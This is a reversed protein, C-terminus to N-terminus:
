SRGYAAAEKRATVAIKTDGTDRDRGSDAANPARAAVGTTIVVTPAGARGYVNAVHGIQVTNVGTEALAASAALVLGATIIFKAAKM